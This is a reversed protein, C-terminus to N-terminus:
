RPDKPETTTAAVLLDDFEPLSANALLREAHTAAYSTYDFDLTSIGLQVVAWMAERFDSMIKMLRLRALRRPTVTGFYAEVFGEEAAPELENNVAFNGLDFYRDNNGAYEWDLLWIHNSADRLFNATLMDNHCPSSPEPDALFAAEIRAAVEAAQGFWPPEPVGRTRAAALHLQPVRFADFDGALPGTGHFRRLHDAVQPLHDPGSLAGATVASAEVFRTVLYGEPELFAVVEPGFGLAAARRAADLEDRRRIELLETDKGALRLVFREHDVDVLINRNTIGGDLSGVVRARGAWGTIRDLLPSVDPTAPDHM